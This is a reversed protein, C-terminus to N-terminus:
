ASRAPRDDGSFANATQPKLNLHLAKIKINWCKQKTKQKLHFKDPINGCRTQNVQNFISLRTIVLGLAADPGYITNYLQVHTVDGM